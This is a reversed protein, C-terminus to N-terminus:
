GTYSLCMTRYRTFDKAALLQAEESGCFTPNTPVFATSRSEWTQPDPPGAAQGFPKDGRGEFGAEYGTGFPGLSGGYAYGFENTQDRFEPVPDNVYVGPPQKMAEDCAVQLLPCCQYCYIAGPGETCAGAQCPLCAALGDGGSYPNFTGEPCATPQAAGALSYHGPPTTLCGAPDGLAEAPSYTGPPCPACRHAGAAPDYTQQQVSAFERSTARRFDDPTSHSYTGPPCVSCAPAGEAPRFRGPACPTCEVSGPVGAFWGKPCDYCSRQGVEPQAQGPPCPDCPCTFWGASEGDGSEVTTFTCERCESGKCCGIGRGGGSRCGDDSHVVGTPDDANFTLFAAMMNHKVCFQAGARPPRLLLLLLLLLPAQRLLRPGLGRPLGRRAPARM